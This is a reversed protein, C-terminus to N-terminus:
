CGEAVRYIGWVFEETSNGFRLRGNSRWDAIPVATSCVRSASCSEMDKCTRPGGLCPIDDAVLRSRSGCAAASVVIRRQANTAPRTAEESGEAHFVGQNAPKSALRRTRVAPRRTPFPSFLLKMCPVPPSHCTPTPLSTQDERLGPSRLYRTLTGVTWPTVESVEPRVCSEGEDLAM